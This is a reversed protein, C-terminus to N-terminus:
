RTQLLQDREHLLERRKALNNWGDALAVLAASLRTERSLPAAFLMSRRIKWYVNSAQYEEGPAQAAELIALKYFTNVLGGPTDVAGVGTGAAYLRIRVCEGWNLTTRLDLNTSRTKRGDLGTGCCARCSRLAAGWRM